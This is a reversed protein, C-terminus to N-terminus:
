IINNHRPHIGVVDVFAVTWRIEIPRWIYHKSTLITFIRNNYLMIVYIHITVYMINHRYLLSDICARCSSSQFCDGSTGCHRNRDTQGRACFDFDIIIICWGMLLYSSFSLYIFPMEFFITNVIDNLNYSSINEDWEWINKYCDEPLQRFNPIGRKSLSLTAFWL